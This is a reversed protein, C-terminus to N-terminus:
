HRTRQTDEVEWEARQLERRRRRMRILRYWLLAPGWLAVMGVMIWLVHTAALFGVTGWSTAVLLILLLTWLKFGVLIAIFAGAGPGDDSGSHGHDM